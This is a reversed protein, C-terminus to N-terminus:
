FTTLITTTSRTTATRWTSMSSTCLGGHATKPATGSPWSTRCWGRMGHGCAMGTWYVKVRMGPVVAADDEPVPKGRRADAAVAADGRGDDDGASESESALDPDPDDGNAHSSSSGAAGSRPRRARPPPVRPAGDNEDESGDVVARRRRRRRTQQKEGAVHTGPLEAPFPFQPAAHSLANLSDASIM